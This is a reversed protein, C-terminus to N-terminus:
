DQDIKESDPKAGTLMFQLILGASFLDCAQTYSVSRTEPASWTKLGTAGTILPSHTLDAAVNFDVITLNLGSAFAPDSRLLVNDPKIDRHCLKSEHVASIGNLFQRFLCKTTEIPLGSKHLKM